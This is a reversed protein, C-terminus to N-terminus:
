NVKKWITKKTPDLGKDKLIQLPKFLPSPLNNWSFYDWKEIKDPETVKPKGEKVECFYFLTITHKGEDLFINNTVTFLEGCKGEIGTEEFLEREVGKQIEENFDLLGGPPSWTGTGHKGLRKGLLIKGEHIVIAGLGVKPLLKNDDM